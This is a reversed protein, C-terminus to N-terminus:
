YGTVDIWIIAGGPNSWSGFPAATTNTGSNWVPSGVSCGNADAKFTNVYNLFNYQFTNGYGGLRSTRGAYTRGPPLSTGDTGFRRIILPKSGLFWSKVGPSKYVEFGWAWPTPVTHALDFVYITTATGLPGNVWFAFTWTGDGNNVTNSNVGQQACSMFAIPSEGALTVIIFSGGFFPSSSNTTTVVKHRLVYSSADDGISLSGKANWIRVGWM